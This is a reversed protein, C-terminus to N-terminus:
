PTREPPDLEDALALLASRSVVDAALDRLCAAIRRREASVIEGHPDDPFTSFTHETDPYHGYPQQCPRCKIGHQPCIMGCPQGLVRMAETYQKSGPKTQAAIRRAQSRSYIMQKYEGAPRTRRSIQETGRRYAEERQALAERTEDREREAKQRADVISSAAKYIDNSEVIVWKDPPASLGAGLAAAFEELNARAKRLAAILVLCRGAHVDAHWPRAFREWEALQEDTPIMGAGM